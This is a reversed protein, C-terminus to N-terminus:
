NIYVVNKCNSCKRWTAELTYHFDAIQVPFDLGIEEDFTFLFHQVFDFVDLFYTPCFNLHGHLRKCKCYEKQLTDYLNVATTCFENDSFKHLNKIM